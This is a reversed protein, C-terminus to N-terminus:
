SVLEQFKVGMPFIPPAVLSARSSIRPSPLTETVKERPYYPYFKSHYSLKNTFCFITMRRAAMNANASSGPHAPLVGVAGEELLMAEIAPWSIFLLWGIEEAGSFVCVGKRLVRYKKERPVRGTQM